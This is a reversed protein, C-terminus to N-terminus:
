THDYHLRYQGCEVCQFLYLGIDDGLQELSLGCDEELRKVEDKLEVEMSILQNKDLYGIFICYENCHSLWQPEQWSVYSPTCFLLEDLKKENIPKIEDYGIYYEYENTEDNYTVSLLQNNYEVAGQFVGKHNKAARGDHICWPCISEIEDISFFAGSYIYDTEQNCVECKQNLAKTFIGIDYANPNYRFQPLKDRM